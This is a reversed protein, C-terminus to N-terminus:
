AIEGMNQLSASECQFLSPCALIFRALPLAAEWLMLGTHGITNKHIRAM